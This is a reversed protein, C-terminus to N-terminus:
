SAARQRLVDELNAQAIDRIHNDEIFKSLVIAQEFATIAEDFRRVERLANGLNNLASAEGHHDRLTHYITAATQHPAIAEDFHHMGQLAIGLNNLARGEGRHDSLNHYITAATQLTTIAEDFHWVEHLAMGLNNLAGAEGHHDSFDRYITIATQHATIAEDFRRVERLAIGLSNLAQGEGYHDSFDRYITAATQHATIAEDFRRVERLAIGLGNLARGEGYHDSFDRYITAAAQLTTIAEDFRRVGQLANGLNTLAGAENHHDSLNRYITAATQLTTIAEDFRRVERLANGLNTLTGAEGHRDALNRYITIAIRYTTIAEDFRRVGQLTNGLNALAGAENHHDSLNLYITAATQLTTIAEDFRRVERLAIGLGNLARGEGYHDSLNRYITAATQHTTIAEDFRRAERLAIGLSNLTRGEDHPDGLHKSAAVAITNVTLCDELLRRHSLYMNLCGALHAAVHHRGASASLAVVAVLNAREADLWALAADRGTFHSPVPQGPLAHLHDDAAEATRLYFDLLRDLAKEREDSIAEARGHHDAYLRILDHMGWRSADPVTLLHARSLAALQRRVIPETSGTLAAAAQISIDPGPNLSLLRFLQAQAPQDSRLHNYSLDFAAGVGVPRGYQDLDGSDLADLRQRADILEAAMDALRRMPEARLLAGIIQLALPLGGCLRVIALAHEPESPVRQDPGSVQLATHLLDLAEAESLVALDILYTPLTLTHRSTILLRHCPQAPLLPEVQGTVAANDAVVLVPLQQRAREALVSRYLSLQEQDTPPLEDDRIGMARLLQIAAAAAHVRETSDSTYGRLDVFFVGGCFWGNRIAQHATVLALATKGIGAMGVLAASVVVGAEDGRSPQLFALVKELTDSRGVFGVPAAPLGALAQPAAGSTHLTLHHAVTVPATFVGGVTVADDGTNLAGSNDGGIAVARDGQASASAPGSVRASGASAHGVVMGGSVMGVATSDPESSSVKSATSGVKPQPPPLPSRFQMWLAVGAVLLGAIGVFMSIVSARKDLVDLLVSPGQESVAFFAFLGVALLAM